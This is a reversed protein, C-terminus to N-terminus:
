EGRKNTSRDELKAEIKAVAITLRIVAVAIAITFVVNSITLLEM